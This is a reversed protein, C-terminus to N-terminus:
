DNIGWHRRSDMEVQWLAEDLLVSRTEARYHIDKAAAERDSRPTEGFHPFVDVGGPQAATEVLALTQNAGPSGEADPDFSLVLARPDAGHRALWQELWSLVGPPLVDRGHASLLLIDAHEAERAALERFAPERLLDFRSLGIHFDAELKLHEALSELAQKARLGTQADEYVLQVRLTPAEDNFATEDATVAISKMISQMSIVNPMLELRTGIPAKASSIDALQQPRM